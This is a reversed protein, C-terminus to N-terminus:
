HFLSEEKQIYAKGVNIWIATQTRKFSETLEETTFRKDTDLM